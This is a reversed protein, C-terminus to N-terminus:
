LSSASIVEGGAKTAVAWWTVPSISSKIFHVSGDVFVANVGGPHYSSAGVLTYIQHVGTEGQFFCARQNPMMIHTYGGGEVCNDNLWQRGKHDWAAGNQTFITTSSQCSQQIQLLNYMGNKSPLAMSAQYTQHPGMTMTMYRGRVWESFMATNSTGDIISAMTVVPGNNAGMKYAPGDLMGGHNRYLTGINNPYSTYAVQRSLGNLTSTSTPVNADSPCLFSNITMTFVTWNQKNQELFSMNLANFAAQQELFPLIRAKMSFNNTPGRGLTATAATANSTPPLSGNIDDYNHIALGLQKLNNVCQARRAAERAAQVAPLLLAILVAIIAIVVLLEILTFGRRRM